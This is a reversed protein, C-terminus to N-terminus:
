IDVTAQLERLRRWEAFFAAYRGANRQERLGNCLARVQLASERLLHPPAPLAPGAPCVVLPRPGATAWPAQRLRAASAEDQAQWAAAYALALAAEPATAAADLLAADARMVTPTAVPTTWGTTAFVDIEFHNCVKQILLSDAACAGKRHAPFPICRVGEGALAPGRELWFVETDDTTALFPALEAWLAGSGPKAGPPAGIGDILLRLPSATM